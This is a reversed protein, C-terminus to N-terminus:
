GVCGHAETYEVRYSNCGLIKKQFTEGGFDQDDVPIHVMAVAKLVNEIIRVLHEINGQVSMVLSAEKRACSSYFLYFGSYLFIYLKLFM